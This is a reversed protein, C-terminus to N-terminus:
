VKNINKSPTMTFMVGGQILAGRPFRGVALFIAAGIASILSCAFLVVALNFFKFNGLLLLNYIFLHAPYFHTCM